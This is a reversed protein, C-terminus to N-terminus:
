KGFLKQLQYEDFLIGNMWWSEAMDETKEFSFYIEKGADFFSGGRSTVELTHDGLKFFIREPKKDDEDENWANIQNYLFDIDAETANFRVKKLILKKPGGLKGFRTRYEYTYIRRNDLEGYSLRALWDCKLNDEEEDYGCDIKGVEYTKTPNLQIIQSYSCNFMISFLISYFLKM